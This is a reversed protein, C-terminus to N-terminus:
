LNSRLSCLASFPTLTCMLVAPVLAIISGLLYWPKYYGVRSMMVGSSQIATILLFIFPLLRVASQIADDGRTFQFYIPIYYVSPYTVMGVASCAVFLLVPEKQKFLHMPFMRDGLSTAITFGQQLLFAAWLAASVVFLAIIQGSKWAYLTGGFSIGMVLTTFAGISLIAGIWDFAMLKQKSSKGPAPNNSPIVVIYTPILIAGFLLNIYFAWRWTYLEFGGGVVPGLVTGL